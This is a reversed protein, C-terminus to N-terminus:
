ECLPTIELVVRLGIQDYEVIKPVVTHVADEVIITKETGIQFKYEFDNNCGSVLFVPDKTKERDELKVYIYKVNQVDKTTDNERFEATQTECSTPKVSCATASNGGNGNTSGTGSNVSGPIYPKINVNVDPGCSLAALAIVVPANRKVNDVLNDITRSKVIM